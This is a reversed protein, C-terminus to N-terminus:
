KSTVGKSKILPKITTEYDEDHQRYFRIMDAVITQKDSGETHAVKLQIYRHLDHPIRVGLMKLNM